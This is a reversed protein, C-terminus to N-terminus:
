FVQILDRTLKNIYENLYVKSLDESRYLKEHVLAMSKIRNQSDRFADATEKDQIKRSQLRLLSSVIQLNNKVRHHIEKLLVEKEQLSAKLIEESRKRETIDKISEIAGVINGQSDYLASAVCWLYVQGGGLMPM